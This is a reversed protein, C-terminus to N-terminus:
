SHEFYYLTLIIHNKKKVETMIVIFYLVNDREGKLFNENRYIILNKM